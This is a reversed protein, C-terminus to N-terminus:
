HTGSLGFVRKLTKQRQAEGSGELRNVTNVVIGLVKKGRLSEVGQIAESLSSRAAVVLLVRDTLSSLLDADPCSLLDPADLFIWRFQKQAVALLDRMRQTNILETSNAVTKGATVVHLRWIDTRLVTQNLHLGDSLFDALGQSNDIGLLRHLAPNRLNADILLVSGPAKRAMAAALNVVTLSKGEGRGTSTVLISGFATEARMRTLREALDQYVRGQNSTESPVSVLSEVPNTRTEALDLRDVDGAQGPDNDTHLHVTRARASVAGPAPSAGPTNLGGLIASGSLTQNVVGRGEEEARRMAEHIRGM